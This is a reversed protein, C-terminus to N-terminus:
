QRAELRVDGFRATAAEGTQDTDNGLAVGTLAPAAGKWQAGFAARFDAELDRREGVWQGVRATGSEAVVIRIRDTYPSWATTGVSLRNDWVYCIGATPLDEGYLLRALRMKIRAAFGLASEPVEFFVYVRAAFDDGERRGFGAAGVVRDIKWRWSLVPRASLDTRLAHAAAGAARRSKVELVTADDAVLAVEAPPVRGVRRVKWEGPLAGGPTASSFPAIEAPQALAV